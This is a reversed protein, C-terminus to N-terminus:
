IIKTYNSQENWAVDFHRHDHWTNNGLYRATRYHKSQILTSIEVNNAMLSICTYRTRAAPYAFFEFENAACAISSRFFRESVLVNQKHIPHESLQHFDLVFQEDDYIEYGCSFCSNIDGLVSDESLVILAKATKQPEFIETLKDCVSDTNFVHRQPYRSFDHNPEHWPSEDLITEDLKYTDNNCSFDFHV